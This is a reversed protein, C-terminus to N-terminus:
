ICYTAGGLALQRDVLEKLTRRVLVESVVQGLQAWVEEAASPVGHIHTADATPAFLEGELALVIDLLTIGAPDKALAYGGSPGRVARVLGATKLGGILVHIYKASLEQNEAIVDVMVPGQGWHRALEMMVRLGSRGKASVQM